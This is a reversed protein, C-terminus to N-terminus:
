AARDLAELEGTVAATILAQRHELLLTVQRHLLLQAETHKRRMSDLRDALHLQASRPVDPVLLSMYREANVNQITSRTATEAIQDWYHATQTWLELINPLVRKRDVRIRILYGAFCAAGMSSQYRLAKGTTAGSRAFLLDGDEMLFPRALSPPLRKSNDTRLTGDAGLDTIRIYRPWESPGDEGSELAGYEPLVSLLRRLPVLDGRSASLLEQEVIVRQREALRESLERKKAILADIRTTEADLFDAISQQAPPSPLPLPLEYFDFTSITRGQRIGQAVNELRSVFIQSKFLHRFYPPHVRSDCPRLVTYAPSVIGEIPSFGIGSQFSRLGIVFDGPAVRKYLSTDEAPNWVSIELDSRTSL